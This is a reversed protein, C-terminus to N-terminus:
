GIRRKLMLNERYMGHVYIGALIWFEEMQEFSYGTKCKGLLIPLIEEPAEDIRAELSACKELDSFMDGRKRESSPCQLVLHKIDDPASLECLPCCRSFTTLKKLRVDDMNLLSAHCVLRAMTECISIYEPYRDSLAWWTLYKPSPNIASVLDLSKHLRYEINDLLIAVLTHVYPAFKTDTSKLGGPAVRAGELSNSFDLIAVLIAATNSHPSQGYRTKKFKSCCREM